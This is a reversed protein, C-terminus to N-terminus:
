DEFQNDVGYYHRRLSKIALETSPEPRLDPILADFTDLMREIRMLIGLSTGWESGTGDIVGWADPSNRYSGESSVWFTRSSQPSENGLTDRSLSLSYLDEELILDFDVDSAVEAHAVVYPHQLEGLSEPLRYVGRRIGDRDSDVALYRAYGRVRSRIRAALEDYEKDPNPIESMVKM